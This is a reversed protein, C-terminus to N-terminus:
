TPSNGSRTSELNATDLYGLARGRKPNRLWLIPRRRTRCSEPSSDATDSTLLRPDRTGDAGHIGPYRSMRRLRLERHGPGHGPRRRKGTASTVTSRNVARASCSQPQLSVAISLELNTPEESGGREKGLWAADM